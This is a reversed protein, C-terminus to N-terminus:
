GRGYYIEVPKCLRTYEEESVDNRYVFSDEEHAINFIRQQGKHVVPVIERVNQLEFAYGGDIKKCDTLDAIAAIYGRNMGALAKAMIAIKGRHKTPWSRYEYKKEGAIIKEVYEGEISIAKVNKTRFFNIEYDSM